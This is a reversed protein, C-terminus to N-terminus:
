NVPIDNELNQIDRYWDLAAFGHFFYYWDQYWNEELVKHKLNSKESNALMKFNKLSHTHICGHISFENIPEQDFFYCVPLELWLKGYREPYPYYKGPMLDQVDTSGFTKYIVDHLGLPKLLHLHLIYYFNEISFM